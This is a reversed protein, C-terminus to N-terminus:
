GAAAVRAEVHTGTEQEARPPLDQYGLLVDPTVGLADALACLSEIYLSQKEKEVRCLTIPSMDAKAALQPQTLGARRRLRYVRAAVTERIPVKKM